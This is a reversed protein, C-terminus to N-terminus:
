KWLMACHSHSCPFHYSSLHLPSPTRTPRQGWLVIALGLSFFTLKGSCIQPHIFIRRTPFFYSNVEFNASVTKDQTFGQLVEQHVLALHFKAVAWVWDSHVVVWCTTAESRPNLHSYVHCQASPDAHYM